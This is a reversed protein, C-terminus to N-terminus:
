KLFFCKKSESQDIYNQKSSSSFYKIWIINKRVKRVFVHGENLALAFLISYINSLFKSSFFHLVAMKNYQKWVVPTSWMNTSYLRKPGPVDNSLFDLILILLFGFLSIPQNWLQGIIMESLLRHNETIVIFWIINKNV